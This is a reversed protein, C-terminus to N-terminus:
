ESRRAELHTPVVGWMAVYALVGAHLLLSALITKCLTHRDM